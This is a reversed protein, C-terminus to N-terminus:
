QKFFLFLEIEYRTKSRSNKNFFSPIDCKFLVFCALFKIETDKTFSGKKGKKKSERQPSSFLSIYLFFIIKKM